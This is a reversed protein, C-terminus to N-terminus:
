LHLDKSIKIIRDTALQIEEKTTFASLSIRISSDVVAKSLGMSLLVPSPDSSGSACASGTSVALGQIDASMLFEQRDVDVFSINSVHAVRKALGGNIEIACHQKLRNELDDRLMAISNTDSCKVRHYKQIAAQMGAALVM